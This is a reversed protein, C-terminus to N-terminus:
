KRRRVALKTDVYLKEEEREEKKKYKIHRGQAENHPLSLTTKPRKNM